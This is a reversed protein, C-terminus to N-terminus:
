VEEGGVGSISGGEPIRQGSCWPGRNSLKKPPRVNMAGTRGKNTRWLHLMKCEDPNLEM